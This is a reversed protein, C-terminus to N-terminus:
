SGAVNGSPVASVWFRMGVTSATRACTSCRWSRFCFLSVRESPAVVGKEVTITEVELTNSQAVMPMYSELSLRSM